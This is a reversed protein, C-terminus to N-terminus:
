KSIVIRYYRGNAPDHNWVIKGADEVVFKPPIGRYGHTTLSEYKGILDYTKYIRDDLTLVTANLATITPTMNAISFNPTNSQYVEVAYKRDRFNFFMEVLGATRSMTFDSSESVRGLSDYYNNQNDVKQIITKQIYVTVDTNSVPATNSTVNSVQRPQTAYPQRIISVEEFPPLIRDVGLYDTGVGKLVINLKESYPVLRGNRFEALFKHQLKIYSQVKNEHQIVYAGYKEDVEKLTPIRKQELEKKIFNVVTEHKVGKKTKTSEIVAEIDVNHTIVNGDKNCYIQCAKYDRCTQIDGHKGVLEDFYDSRRIKAKKNLKFCMHIHKGPDEGQEHGKQKQDKGHDEICIIAEEVKNGKQTWFEQLTEM